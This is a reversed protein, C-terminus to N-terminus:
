LFREKDHCITEKLEFQGSLTNEYIVPVINTKEIYLSVARRCLDTDRGCFETEHCVSIQKLVFNDPFPFERLNM